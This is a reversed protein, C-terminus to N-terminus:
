FIRSIKLDSIGNFYHVPFILTDQKENTAVNQQIPKQLAKTKSENLKDLKYGSALFHNINQELEQKMTDDNSNNRITRLM